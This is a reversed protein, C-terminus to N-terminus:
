GTSRLKMRGVALNPFNKKNQMINYKTHKGPYSKKEKSDDLIQEWTQCGPVKLTM